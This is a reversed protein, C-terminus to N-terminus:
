ARAAKSQSAAADMGASNHSFAENLVAQMLQDAHSQNQNIQIELQDCLTFVKEVKAVIAQQEAVPPVPFLLSKLINQNLFLRTSGSCLEKLQELVSTCGKFLFCFYQPDIIQDLISVRLLNTSILGNEVDNPIVCVEDITGSRSIIIDRPVAAFSRLEIAKNESVFIKNKYSFRGNRISEIGWVPVGAAQHESKQLASGFPGTIM